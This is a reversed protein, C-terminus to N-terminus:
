SCAFWGMWQLRDLGNRGVANTHTAGSCESRYKAAVELATSQKTNCSEGCSILEMQGGGAPETLLEECEVHLCNVPAGIEVRGKM